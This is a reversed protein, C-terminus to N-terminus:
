HQRTEEGVDNGSREEVDTFTVHREGNITYSAGDPAVLITIEGTVEGRANRFFAPDNVATTAFQRATRGAVRVPANSPHGSRDAGSSYLVFEPDLANLLRATTSFGSGHHNARYIEVDSERGISQWHDVIHHEINTFTGFSRKVFFPSAVPDNTGNLDGATFMEFEGATIELAISLDNEDGPLQDYRAPPTAALARDFASAGGPVKGSFALVDVEVGDGLDILTTGFTPLRSAGVRGRAIWGQMRDEITHFVGRTGQATPLFQSGDPGPHIFEGIHFQSSTSNLVNIIGSAHDAHYHTLLFYDVGNANGTLERIRRLVHAQSTTFNPPLKSTPTPKGLDILLTKRDPPPGIVLMSDAQGIDFVHIELRAPAAELAMAAPAAVPVTEVEVVEADAVFRELERTNEVDPTSSVCAAFLLLWLIRFLKSM